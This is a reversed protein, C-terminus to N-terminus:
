QTDVPPYYIFRPLRISGSKVHSAVLGDGTFMVADALARVAHMMIWRLVPPTRSDIIKWLVATDELKAALAGHPNVLGALAVLDIHQERIIRRIAAVEGPFSFLSSLALRPDLSARLRHLPMQVMPVGATRLRAAANGPEDPLLIVLEWGHRALPRCLRLAHNHPGGFTSHHVVYLLKRM